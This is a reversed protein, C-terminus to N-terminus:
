GPLVDTVDPMAVAGIMMGIRPDFNLAGATQGGLQMLREEAWDYGPIHSYLEGVKGLTRLAGGQLTDSQAQKALWPLATDEGWDALDAGWKREEKIPTSTM